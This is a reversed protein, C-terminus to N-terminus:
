LKLGLFPRIRNLEVSHPNLALAHRAAAPRAKGKSALALDLWLRWDGPNKAIGARLSKRAAALKGQQLQAEGLARWPDSAWPQLSAAHRAKSEAAPWRQALTARQASALARNGALTFASFAAVLVLAAGAATRAVSGGHV